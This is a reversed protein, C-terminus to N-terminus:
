FRKTCCPFALSEAGQSALVESGCSGAGGAEAALYFTRSNAPSVYLEPRPSGGYEVYGVRNGFMNYLSLDAYGGDERELAFRYETGAELPVAFWDSDGETEFVGPATGGVALRGETDTTSSYDDM